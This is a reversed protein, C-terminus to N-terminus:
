NDIVMAIQFNIPFQFNILEVDVRSKPPNKVEQIKLGPFNIDEATLLIKKSYGPNDQWAHQQNKILKM